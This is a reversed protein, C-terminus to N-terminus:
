ETQFDTITYDSRGLMFPSTENSFNTIYFKKSCSKTANVFAM